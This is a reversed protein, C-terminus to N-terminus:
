GMDDISVVAAADPTAALMQITGSHPAEIAARSAHAIPRPGEVHPAEPAPAAPEPVPHTASSPHGCSLALTALVISPRRSMARDSRRVGVGVDDRVSGPDHRVPRLEM